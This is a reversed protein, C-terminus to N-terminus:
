CGNCFLRVAVFLENCWVLGFLVSEGGEAVNRADEDVDGSWGRQTTLLLAPIDCSM